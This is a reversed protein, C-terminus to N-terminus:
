RENEEKWRQVAEIDKTLAEFTNSNDFHRRLRAVLWNQAEFLADCQEHALEGDVFLSATYRGTTLDLVIGARGDSIRQLRTEKKEDNTTM